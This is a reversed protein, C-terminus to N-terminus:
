RKYMRRAAADLLAGPGRGALAALRTKGGPWVISEDKEIGRVMADAWEEPTVKDWGSTDFHDGYGSETADLMPTDVGPTVLHMVKVGTPDLERRLAESFAVVGAKGAAYVSALPFWAYGSMSANNVIMGEGRAVMSPLALQTLLILGTLNVQISQEIRAPDQEELLGVSLVGANNVLLDVDTLADAEAQWCSEISARSSLDIAVPRVNKASFGAASPDRMGALVLGCDDALREVMAHGIGGNAGTVLATKGSLDM